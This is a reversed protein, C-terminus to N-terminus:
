RVVEASRRASKTAQAVAEAADLAASLLGRIAVSRSVVGCPAGPDYLTGQYEEIRQLLSPTLRVNIPNMHARAM